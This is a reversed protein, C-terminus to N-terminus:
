RLVSSTHMDLPPVCRQSWTTQSFIYSGTFGAGAVGTLLNGLGVTKLEANYDLQM